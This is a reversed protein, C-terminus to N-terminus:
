SQEDLGSEEWKSPVVPLCWVFQRLEREANEEDASRSARWEDAAIEGPTLFLNHVASWRFGLTDTAPLEGQVQGSADLDSSCM